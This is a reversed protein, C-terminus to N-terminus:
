GESHFPGNDDTPGDETRSEGGVGRALQVLKVISIATWVGNLLVFGWTETLLGTVTLVGAGLLNLVQYTASEVDLRGLQLGTFAALVFFAGVISLVQTM